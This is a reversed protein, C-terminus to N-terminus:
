LPADMGEGDAGSQREQCRIDLGEQSVRGARRNQSLLVLQRWRGSLIFPVKRSEAKAILDRAMQNKDKFKGQLEALMRMAHEKRSAEDKERSVSLLYKENLQDKKLYINFDLPISMRGKVIHTTLV